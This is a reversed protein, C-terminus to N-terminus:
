FADAVEATVGMDGLMSALDYAAYEDDVELDVKEGARVRDLVRIAEHFRLGTYNQLVGAVSHGSASSRAGTVVVRSMM